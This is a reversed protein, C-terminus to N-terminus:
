RSDKLGIYGEGDISVGPSLSRMYELIRTKEEDYALDVRCGSQIAPIFQFAKLGERGITVRVM